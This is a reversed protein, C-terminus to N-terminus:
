DRRVALSSRPFDYGGCHRRFGGEGQHQGLRQQDAARQELDVPVATCAEIDRPKGAGLNGIRPFVTRM